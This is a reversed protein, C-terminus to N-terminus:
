TILVLFKGAEFALGSNWVGLLDLIDVLAIIRTISIWLAQTETYLCSVSVMYAAVDWRFRFILRDLMKVFLFIAILSCLVLINRSKEIFLITSTTRTRLILDGRIIVPRTFLWSTNRPLLNQWISNTFVTWIILYSWVISFSAYFLGTWSGSVKNDFLVTGAFFAIRVCDGTIVLM